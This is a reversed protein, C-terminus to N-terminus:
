RPSGWVYPSENSNILLLYGFILPAPPIIRGTTDGQWYPARDGLCYCQEYTTPLLEMTRVTSRCWTLLRILVNKKKRQRKWLVLYISPKPQSPQRMLIATHHCDKESHTGVLQRMHIAKHHCDKSKCDRRKNIQLAIIKNESHTGVIKPFKKRCLSQNMIKRNQHTKETWRLIKAKM